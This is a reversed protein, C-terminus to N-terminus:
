QSVMKRIAEFGDPSLSIATPMAKPDDMAAQMEDDTPQREVNVVYLPGLILPANDNM